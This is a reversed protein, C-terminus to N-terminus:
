VIKVLPCFSIKIGKILERNKPGYITNLARKEQSSVQKADNSTELAFASGSQLKMSWRCRMICRIGFAQLSCPASANHVPCLFIRKDQGCHRSEM